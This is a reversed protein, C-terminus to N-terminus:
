AASETRISKSRVQDEGVGPSDTDPESRDASPPSYSRVIALLALVWWFLWTKEIFLAM